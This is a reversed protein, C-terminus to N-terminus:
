SNTRCLNKHEAIIKDLREVSTNVILETPFDLEELLPLAFQFTAVDTEFHADSGLIIPVQYKKCLKLLITDNERTNKRFGVPNLSNNNLELLTNYDKAAQVVAEYDLPYNSDDPHGIIDIRPNKIAGIVASTNENMTGPKICPGHLSAIRIDMRDLLNRDMDVSGCYDIINLEVGLLLRMGYMERPVVKLNEFYIKHCSGPMMPAHETIGLLSLGKLSAAKAMEQITSYAHGSALTHTHTDLVINM